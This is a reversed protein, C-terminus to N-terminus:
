TLPRVPSPDLVEVYRRVAEDVDFDAARQEVDPHTPADLVTELAQHLATADAVPTLLGWTGHALIEAPGSPCDTSVIPAGCAMAEILVSPLGEWASSLTFVAAHRMWSFPNAVFGPLFTDHELQLSRILATLEGRLEGEGLIVLRAPRKKRLLAFAHILTDFGKAEALRGAAVILPPQGAAAWPHDLPACSLTRIKQIDFPNFIVSIRSRPIALTQALDDAVGGSVAVIHAARRYLRRMLMRLLRYKPSRLHRSAASLTNHESVVLRTGAGAVRCALLAVVNAYDLASLMAAPRERRLYRILGPIAALARSAQLDIVRVGSSVDDRYPGAANAALLDVTVGARAFGNALTVMVREAGGGGFTPMFFAVHRSGHDPRM